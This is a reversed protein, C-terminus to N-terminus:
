RRIRVRRAGLYVASLEGRDIWNRITQKNVRLYNAVDEVTLHARQLDRQPPHNSRQARGTFL